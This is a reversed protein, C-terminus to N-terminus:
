EHEAINNRLEVLIQNFENLVIGKNKYLKNIGVFYSQQIELTSIAKDYVRVDDILGNFCRSASSSITLSTAPDQRISNTYTNTLKSVGNIYVSAKYNSNYILVVNNWVNLPLSEASYLPNYDAPVGNVGYLWWGMNNTDRRITFAYANPKYAIVHDVFNLTIGPTKVWANITLENSINLTSSSGFNVYDDAEDFKLCTGSVCNSSSMWGSTHTDGYGATTNDFGPATALTGINSLWSDNAVIGSAEDLKWQSVRGLLISNDMSNIFAKGKAINASNTVSSMGVLIFASLVGIVVIVVLIEILTFSNEQKM